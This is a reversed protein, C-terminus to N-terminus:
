TTHPAHDVGELASATTNPQADDADETDEGDDVEAYIAWVGLVGPTRRVDTTLIAHARDLDDAEIVLGLKGPEDLLFTEVGPIRDLRGAVEGAATPEIRAFAGVAAMTQTDKTHTNANM